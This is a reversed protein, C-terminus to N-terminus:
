KGLSKYGKLSYEFYTPTTLTFFITPRLISRDWCVDLMWAKEFYSSHCYQVNM